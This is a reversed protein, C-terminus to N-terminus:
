QIASKMGAVTRESRVDNDLQAVGAFITEMFKGSSTEDITETVSRLNVHFAALTARVALHVKADRSFRNLAYVVVIDIRGKNKGCYDIMRKFQPRNATKASEDEEIFIEKVSYSQRECYDVCANQQTPLSFNDVQEKSSVRCYIVATKM